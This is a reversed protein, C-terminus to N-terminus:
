NEISARESARCFVCHCFLYKRGDLRLNKQLFNEAFFSDESAVIDIALLIEERVSATFQSSTSIVHFLKFVIFVKFHLIILSEERGLQICENM